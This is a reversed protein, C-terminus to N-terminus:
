RCRSCFPSRTLWSEFQAAIVLYAFLIASIFVFIFSHFTRAMEKSKGLLGTTYDAGMGLQAVSHDLADLLTQQSTGPTMNASITVQRKRNLRNIEAPGTGEKFKVVDSLAAIEHKSSPVSVTALEKLRNRFEPIARVHVEYQEGKENYDSAKNGAVLLSLTNSFDAISVGLDNAKDRDPKVGYQPKGVVLSSDVDVAGPVQRLDSMVKQTYQDLLKMDPGAIMFQVDAQTMGGGSFIPVPNVSIRLDQKRYPPLINERIYNMMEFQTFRRRAVPAMRVYVTGENSIRQDSDAVSTLTYEVGCLRRVDRSIRDLLVFTAELSTGEPGSRSKM